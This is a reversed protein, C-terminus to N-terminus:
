KSKKKRMMARRTKRIDLELQEAQTASQRMSDALVKFADMNKAQAMELAKAMDAFGSEAEMLWERILTARGAGTVAGIRDLVAVLSDPLTLNVRTGLNQGM